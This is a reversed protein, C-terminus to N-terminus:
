TEADVALALVVNAIKSAEKKTLDSPLGSIKVVLNPRIPVPFTVDSSEDLEDGAKLVANPIPAKSTSPIKPIAGPKFTLPNARYKQLDVLASSVRSRYIKISDPKFNNGKLHSFRMAIEDFDIKRLDKSEDDSLIDLFTNTAAKRAAVTASNMLGKNGLYTLFDLLAKKSFDDSM